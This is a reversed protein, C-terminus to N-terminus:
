PTYVKAQAHTAAPAQPPPPPPSAQPIVQAPAPTPGPASAPASVPARPGASSKMYPARSETTTPTASRSPAPADRQVEAQKSMEPAADLKERSARDSAAKEREVKQLESRRASEEAAARSKSELLAVQEPEPAPKAPPQAVGRRTTDKGASSIGGAAGGQALRDRPSTLGVGATEAEDDSPQTLQKPAGKGSGLSSSLDGEFGGGSGALPAKSPAAKKKAGSKSFDFEGQSPLPATKRSALNQSSSTPLVPRTGRGPISNSMQDYSDTGRQRYQPAEKTSLKKDGSSDVDVRQVQGGLARGVQARADQGEVVPLDNAPPAAAPAPAPAAAAVPQQWGEAKGGKYGDANKDQGDENTEAAPGGAAQQALAQSGSATAGQRADLQAKAEQKQIEAPSMAAVDPGAKNAVVSVVLLVAALSAGGVLGFIWRRVGRAPSPGVQARRAAQEAYALLSDLGADPVPEPALQSMQHRVGQIEALAGTCRSCGKVHAEISRAEAAPLEGYAFELLRDEYRHAGQQNM